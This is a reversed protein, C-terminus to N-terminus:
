GPRQSGTRTSNYTCCAPTKGPASIRLLVAAAFNLLALKHASRSTGPRVKYDLMFVERGVRQGQRDVGSLQLACKLARLGVLAAFTFRHVLVTSGEDAMSNCDHLRTACPAGPDDATCTLRDGVRITRVDNYEAANAALTRGAGRAPKRRCPRQSGLIVAASRMCAMQALHRASLGTDALFLSHPSM